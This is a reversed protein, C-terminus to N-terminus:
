FILHAAAGASMMLFLFASIVAASRAPLTIWVIVYKSVYAALLALKLSLLADASEMKGESFVVATALSIGHVEFLGSLFSVGQVAAAGVTRRTIEVAALMGFILLTLKVLAKWDLPRSSQTGAFAVSRNILAAILIGTGASAACVPLMQKFLPLSAGALILLLELTMAVISLLAGAFPANGPQSRLASALSLFVATSSVLGGLFGSLALGARAGFARMLAYGSFQVVGVLTTLLVLTRPVFLHWPDIPEDPLFPAVGFGLVLLTAAAQVESSRLTSTVFRHLWKRSILIALVAMGLAAGLGPNEHIIHGRIAANM